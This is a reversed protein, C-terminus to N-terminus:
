QATRYNRRVADIYLSLKRGLKDCMEFIESYAEPNKLSKTLYLTELHDKTEDLSAHANTLFHIYDQRYKRRGYGEVINSKVSKSSRRIQSGTEYFEFGPLQTMTMSHIALVLDNSIQWIELNRYSM